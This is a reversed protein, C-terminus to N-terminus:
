LVDLALQVRPRLAGTPTLRADDALGVAYLADAL